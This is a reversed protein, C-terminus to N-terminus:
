AAVGLARLATLTSDYGDHHIGQWGRVRAADINEPRDDIFVTRAPELAFQREAQAYIGADPKMVGARFSTLAGHGLSELGYHRDLHDWHLEGVNSLLFVRHSATLRRALGFMDEAPAFFGLWQRRVEAPDMPRNGLTAIRALLAEGDIEGREHAALDIRDIVQLVHQVDAGHSALFRLFEGFHLEVLVRGVDFVIADIRQMAGARPSLRWQTLRERAEGAM